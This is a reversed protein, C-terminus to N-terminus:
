MIWICLKSLLIPPLLLEPPLYLLSKSKSLPTFPHPTCILQLLVNLPSYWLRCPCLNTPFVMSPLLLSLPTHRLPCFYMHHPTGYLALAAKIPLIISYIALAFIWPSYWLFLVNLQSYWLACYWWAYRNWKTTNGFLTLSWQSPCFYM